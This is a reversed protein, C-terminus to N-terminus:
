IKMRKKQVNINMKVKHVCDENQRYSGQKLHLKYQKQTWKKGM